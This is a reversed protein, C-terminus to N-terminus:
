SRRLLGLNILAGLLIFGAGAWTWITPIEDFLWAGLVAAFLIQIYSFATARGATETQLAKTLGLQGIQTFVGVMLLILWLHGEPMVFAPGPLLLSFPLAILPFYFIIVSPDESRSLRRVIVYAIASGLAGGLAALLPLLPLSQLGASSLSEPRALVLVGILSLVLCLLTTRQLRERLFIWALIATFVPHLYQIVTAEALPLQTVAYYVCVLALAGVTGRAILWVIAQGWLSIGKRRVDLYSLVLSVAARASVIELLPIGAQSSLKVCAAMLAFGLASIIMYRAGPSIQTTFSDRRLM